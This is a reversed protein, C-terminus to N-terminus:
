GRAQIIFARSYSLIKQPHRPARRVGPPLRRSIRQSEPRVLERAAVRQEVRDRISARIAAKAERRRRARSRHSPPVDSLPKETMDIPLLHFREGREAGLEAAFRDYDFHVGDTQSAIQCASRVVYIERIGWAQALGQIALVLMTRPSIGSNLKSAERMEERADFAGKLEGICIAPWHGGGCISGPVVAFIMRFLDVNYTFSLRLEGELTSGAPELIMRLPPHGAPRSSWIVTGDALELKSAAPFRQITEHHCALANMREKPGLGLALYDGLYKLAGLRSPGAPASRVLKACRFHDPLHSMLYAIQRLRRMPKRVHAFAAFGM